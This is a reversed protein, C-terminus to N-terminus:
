RHGTGRPSGPVPADAARTVDGDAPRRVDPARAPVRDGRARRRRRPVGGAPRRAAARLLGARRDGGAAPRPRPPPVRQWAGRPAPRGFASGRGRQWWMRYGGLIMLILALAMLAIQNVVGFLNGTHLEFGWRTLKALVPYDAFRLVDVPACRCRVPPVTSNRRAEATCPDVFVALTRGPDVGPVGSLMVRTTADAEPSPRVAAVTGEPHAERAAAVQRSVPLKRDGAPVTLEHDYVIKEAQFSAAYLLGTLAAVLLFPAVLV